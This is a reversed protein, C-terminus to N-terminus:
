HGLSSVQEFRNVQPSRTQPGSYGGGGIFVQGSQPVKSQTTESYWGVGGGMGRVCVFSFKALNLSKRNSNTWLIGGGFHSSPWISPSRIQTPGSYGLSKPNSNTWLVRGGVGRGGLGRFSFKALNLSMRPVQTHLSIATDGASVM